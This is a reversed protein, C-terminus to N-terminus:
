GLWSTSADRRNSAAKVAVSAANWSFMRVKSSSHLTLFQQRRIEM